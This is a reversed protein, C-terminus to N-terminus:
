RGVVRALTMDMSELRQALLTLQRLAVDLKRELRDIAEYDVNKVPRHQPITTRSHIGVVRAGLQVLTQEGIEFEEEDRVIMTEDSNTAIMGTVYTRARIPNTLFSVLGCNQLRNCKATAGSGGCVRLAAALGGKEVQEIIQRTCRLEIDGGEGYVLDHVFADVDHVGRLLRRPQDFPIRSKIMRNLVGLLTPDEALARRLHVRTSDYTSQLRRERPVYDSHSRRFGREAAWHGYAHDGILSRPLLGRVHALAEETTMGKTIAHCWRM